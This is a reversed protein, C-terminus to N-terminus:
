IEPFFIAHQCVDCSDNLCYPKPLQPKIARTDVRGFSSSEFVLM